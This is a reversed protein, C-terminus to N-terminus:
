HGASRQHVDCLRHVLSQQHLGLINAPRKVFQQLVVRYFTKEIPEALGFM